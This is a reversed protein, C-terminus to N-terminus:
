MKSIIPKLKLALYSAVFAKILDGPIFPIAGTAIAKGINMGTVLSLQAIGFIYVIVIAGLINVSLYAIFNPKKNKLILAMVLAAIPWSLLYGGTPGVLVNLGGSLGSFVPIGIAGLLDFVLLSFFASIPNLLSGSLMVAFTQGTIPVPTFPLPIKVFGMIFTLAAFLAAFVMDKTSLFSKSISNSNDM